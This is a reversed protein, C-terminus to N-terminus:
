GIKKLANRAKKGAIVAVTIKVADGPLYPIVGIVLGQPFSLNMQICLWATGFLYTVATGLVMGAASVWIKGDSKDVMWGSLLALFIFGILYGGTPGALKAVGGTFASFVPLGAAGLLMYILYGSVAMRCGAAMVIFYLALNTFSIPVPTGPITISLPGLICILAAILGTMTLDKTKM